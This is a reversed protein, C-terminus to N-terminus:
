AKNEKKLSDNSNDFENFNLLEVPNTELINALNSIKELDIKSEGNELRGYTKQSVGLQIAMYDQSFGKENRKKRIKICTNM